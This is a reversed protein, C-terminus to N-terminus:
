EEPSDWPMGLGVLLCLGKTENETMMAATSGLWNAISVVMFTCLHLRVMAAESGSIPM